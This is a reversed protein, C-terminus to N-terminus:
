ASQKQLSINPPAQTLAIFSNSSPSDGSVNRADFEFLAYDGTSLPDVTDLGDWYLRGSAQQDADLAIILGHPHHRSKETNVDSKQTPIVTGGRVHIPITGLPADLSVQTGTKTQEQNTLYNYWRASPFYSTVSSVGSELVPSFMLGSGWMFQEDIDHTATDSVFEFALSRVM